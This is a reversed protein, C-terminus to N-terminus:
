NQGGSRTAMPNRDRKETGDNLATIARRLRMNEEFLENIADTKRRLLVSERDLQRIYGDMFTMFFLSCMGAVSLILVLFIKANLSFFARQKKSKDSLVSRKSGFIM